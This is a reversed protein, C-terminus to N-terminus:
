GPSASWGYWRGQLLASILCPCTRESHIAKTRGFKAASERVAIGQLETNRRAKNMAGATDRALGLSFDNSLAQFRGSNPNIGLRQM